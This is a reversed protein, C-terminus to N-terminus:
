RIYQELTRRNAILNLDYFILKRVGFQRIDDIIHGVPKQYPGGGWASPVVCFACKHVCGRTAEFTNTTMYSGPKLLDRRPMPLDSRDLTFAPDMTYRSKLKGAAFDHLLAPWTDEAYGTVIADAHQAAEEPLLTVHPGGLVVPINQARYLAALEYSRKATGTIVTMGILDADLTEPLDEIGEDYLAVTANLESPILSALTTLTLPAARLSKRFIGTRHRYLPGKPSLLVIKM